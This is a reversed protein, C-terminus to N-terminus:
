PSAIITPLVVSEIIQACTLIPQVDRLDTKSEEEPRMVVVEQDNVLENKLVLAARRTGFLADAIFRCM